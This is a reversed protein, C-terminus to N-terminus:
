RHATEGSIAPAQHYCREHERQGRASAAAAM